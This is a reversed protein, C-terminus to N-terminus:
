LNLKIVTLYLTGSKKIVPLPIYYGIGVHHTVGSSAPDFQGIACNILACNDPTPFM